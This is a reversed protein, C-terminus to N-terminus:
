AASLGRIWHSLTYLTVVESLSEACGCCGCSILPTLSVDLFSGTLAATNEPHTSMPSMILSMIFIQANIQKYQFHVETKMFCWSIYSCKYLTM